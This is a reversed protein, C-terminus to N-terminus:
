DTSHVLADKSCAEAEGGKSYPLAYAYLYSYRRSTANTKQYQKGSM